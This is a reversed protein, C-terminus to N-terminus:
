EVLDIGRRRLWDFAGCAETGVLHMRTGDNIPWRWLRFPDTSSRNVGAHTTVAFRYGAAQVAQASADDYDWRRGYPYAFATGAGEGLLTALAERGASIEALQETENLCALVPHNLTHGGVEISEAAMLARAEDHSLYLADVLEAASGGAEEVMEALVAAREVPDADYKLIRKQRNGNCAADRFQDGLAPLREALRAGLPVPGYTEQLWGLAHLWPLRREHVAGGELFVTSRAGVRELLPVLDHLNDRYGDDMSLAVMSRGGAGSSQEQLRKAGEGVSVLDYHKGLARLISELRAGKIKMDAGLARNTAPQDVCHGYLILLRQEGRSDFFRHLGTHWVVRAYVERALGKLRHKISM